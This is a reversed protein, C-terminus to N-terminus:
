EGSTREKTIEGVMLVPGTPAASGTSPESSVAVADLATLDEPARVVVHATGNPGTRFVISPAPQGGSLFWIQYAKEPPLTGLGSLVLVAERRGPIGVLRAQAGPADPTGGVNWIACEPQELLDALREAAPDDSPLDEGFLARAARRLRGETRAPPLMPRAPESPTAASVSTDQTEAAARVRALMRSKLNAAPEALPPLSLLASATRRSAAALDRCRACGALHSEVAGVEDDELAGLAYADLLDDVHQENM